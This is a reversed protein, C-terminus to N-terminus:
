EIWFIVDVVINGKLKNRNNVDFCIKVIILLVFLFSSISFTIQDFDLYFGSSFGLRKM